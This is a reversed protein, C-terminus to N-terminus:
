QPQPHVTAVAWPTVATDVVLLRFSQGMAPDLAGAAIAFARVGPATTVHFSAVVTSNAGAPTVGLPITGLGINLGAEETANSFTLDQILVPNVVGEFNLVGLDVAPADPSGHVVRVLADDKSVDAFRQAVSVLQFSQAGLFGTAISLYSGGAALDGTKATAAPASSPDAGAARFDIDYNGPPVQVPGALNGFELGGALQAAGAYLDVAPANPSAHLAYVLPNQKIFGLSGEPGIALLAFGDADDGAEAVLGTAIVLIEASEPLEPTTFATVKSGNAAIGIQLKEGATLAFGAEDTSTFRDINTLEPSSPDDDHLDIGVSPADPGAHVVRLIANGSGAPAFEERIPLVRFKSSDASSGLLGAAVASVMEGDDLTLGNVEFAAPSDATSPSAKIELDYTGMEVEVWDTADGYQLGAALPATGGKVWIDVSPADSSAHVVRIMAMGPQPEPKEPEPKEPDPTEVPDTDTDCAALLCPSFLAGLVFGISRLSRM